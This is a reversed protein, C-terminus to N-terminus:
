TPGSIRRKYCAGLYHQHWQDMSGMLAALIYGGVSNTMYTM